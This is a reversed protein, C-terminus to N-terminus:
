VREASDARGSLRVRLLSVLRMLCSEVGKTGLSFPMASIEKASYGQRFYLWFVTRDRESVQESRFVREIDVGFTDPGGSRSSIREGAADELSVERARDRKAAGLHKGHDFVVNSAMVKVFRFLATDDDQLRALSAKEEKFVKFLVEQVLDDIIDAEGLGIRRATHVVVGVVLPHLQAILREWDDASGGELCAKLADRIAM